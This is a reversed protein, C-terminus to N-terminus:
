RAATATAPAPEGIAVWRNQNDRAQRKLFSYGTAYWPLIAGRKNDLVFDGRDTVVTLVAHGDGRTDRVVTMLLAQRPFGAEILLKRKLLAYDECDGKGDDPYSWRETVGWHEEDTMPTISKNVRGNIAVLTRWAEPTTTVSASPLQSDQCDSPNDHCFGLWGIPISTDGTIAAFAHHRGDDKPLSALRRGEGHATTGLLFTVTALIAIFGRRV